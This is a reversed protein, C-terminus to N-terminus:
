EPLIGPILRVRIQQNPLDVDLIVDQIAPLLIEAGQSPLVVYVDNAGTELIESISGLVQDQEDVVQLGILQHHYYEGEPLPPRDDARVFLYQNTLTGVTEPTDYGALTLLLANKHIRQAIIEIPEYGPGLFVKVGAYLREPFDTLLHLFIEGRVGHPRGLKGVALFVPEGPSPSGAPQQVPLNSKRESM